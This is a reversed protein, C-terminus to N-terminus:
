EDEKVKKVKSLYRSKVQRSELISFVFGLIFSIFCFGIAGSFKAIGQEMIHCAYLLLVVSLLPLISNVVTIVTQMRKVAEIANNIKGEDTEIQLAAKISALEMRYAELKKDIYLKKTIWFVLILSILGAFSVTYRNEIDATSGYHVLIIIVPVVLTCALSLLGFVLKLPTKKM